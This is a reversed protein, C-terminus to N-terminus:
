GGRMKMRFIIFMLRHNANPPKLDHFTMKRSSSQAQYQVPGLQVSVLQEGVPFKAPGFLQGEIDRRQLLAM